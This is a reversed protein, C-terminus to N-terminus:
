LNINSGQTPQYAGEIKTYDIGEIDYTFIEQIVGGGVLAEIFYESVEEPNPANSPSALVFSLDKMYNGVEKIPPIAM